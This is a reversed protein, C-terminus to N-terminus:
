SIARVKVVTNIAFDECSPGLEMGIVRVEIVPLHSLATESHVPVALPVIHHGQLAVKVFTFDSLAKGDRRSRRDSRGNNLLIALKRTAIQEAAPTVNQFVPRIQLDLSVVVPCAPTLGVERLHAVSKVNVKQVMLGQRPPM